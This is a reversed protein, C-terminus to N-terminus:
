EGLPSCFSRPKFPEIRIGSHVHEDNWPLFASLIKIRLHVEDRIGYACRQIVTDQGKVAFEYLHLWPAISSNSM